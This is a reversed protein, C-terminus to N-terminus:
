VVAVQSREGDVEVERDLQTMVNRRRERVDGLAADARDLVQPAQLVRPDVRREDAAREHGGVVRGRCQTFEEVADVALSTTALSLTQPIVRGSSRSHQAASPTSATPMLRQA